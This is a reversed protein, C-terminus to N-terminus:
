LINGLNTFTINGKKALYLNGRDGKKNCFNCIGIRGIKACKGAGANRTKSGREIERYVTSASFGIREAILAAPEGKAICAQILMRDNITLKSNKNDKKAM